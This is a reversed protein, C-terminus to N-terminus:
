FKIGRAFMKGALTTLMNQFGTIWLAKSGGERDRKWEQESAKLQENM